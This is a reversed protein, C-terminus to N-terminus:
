NRADDRTTAIAVKPEVMIAERPRTAGGRSVGDVGRSEAVLYLPRRQVMRFVHGLYHAYDKAMTHYTYVLPSKFAGAMQWALLNVVTNTHIHILDFRERYFREFLPLNLPYTWYVEQSRSVRLSPLHVVEDGTALSSEDKWPLFRTVRHGEKRLEKALLCTSTDVGSASMGEIFFAINLPSNTVLM